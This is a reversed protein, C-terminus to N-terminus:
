EARELKPGRPAPPERKPTEVPPLPSPPAKVLAAPLQEQLARGLAQPEFDGFVLLTFNEPRYQLRAAERLDALRLRALSEPTGSFATRYPHGEPFLRRQMLTVLAAQAGTEIQERMRAALLARERDVDAEDTGCLPDSLRAGTLRLLAAMGE